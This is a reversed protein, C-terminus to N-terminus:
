KNARPSHRTQTSTPLRDRSAIAELTDADGNEPLHCVFEVLHGDPDLVFGAYYNPHIKTMLSPGRNEKGGAQIAAQHCHDVRARTTCNFAFHPRPDSPAGARLWFDLTDAHAGFGFAPGEVHLAYGLPRLAGAYFSASKKLDQVLLELHDIM